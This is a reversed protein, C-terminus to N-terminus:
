DKNLTQRVSPVAIFKSNDIGLTRAPNLMLGNGATAGRYTASKVMYFKMAAGTTTYSNTYVTTVPAFVGDPTNAAYVNYAYAGPVANWTVTVNAGASVITMNAPAAVTTIPTAPDVIFMTNPMNSSLTGAFPLAGVFTTPDVAATGDVHYDRFRNPLQTSETYYFHNTTASYFDEWVSYARVALNGGTYVFPTQLPIVVANIGIPFTVTGDYVLTYTANNLWGGALTNLATNQMWLKIPKNVTETFNNQYVIAQITGGSMMLEAGTYIADSISNKWYVNIFGTNSTTTTAVNGVTPMFTNASYVSVTKPATTNNGALMDGALVVEAYVSYNGAAAPTWNITHVVSATPAIAASVTLSALEQNTVAKKLKVTYANESLLGTNTVTANYSYQTGAVAMLPGTLTAISLDHALLPLLEFNDMYVSRYTGGGGHKFAIYSDTGVYTEFSVIYQANTTTLTITQFPTFTGTATNNNVTGVILTNGATGARAYFKTKVTNLNVGIPPTILRLAAPNADANNYMYINNPASFAGTTSTSLTPTSTSSIVKSWYDPLNPTSVGDFNETYPFTVITPDTHTTFRWIRFEPDEIDPTELAANIPLVAWFYTNNWGLNVGEQAALNLSPTPTEFYMGEFLTAESTSVYVGFLTATSGTPAPTWTLTTTLPNVGTAADIPSVLTVHNPAGTPVIEVTVDDVFMNNGYASVAELVVYGTASSAGAPLNFAYPYWGAAAEVPTMANDRYVTGLLTAGTLNNTTNYYVNVKEDYGAYAPDRYMYFKMRYAAAGLSLPPTVIIAKNGASSSYANYTIMKAGSNPACTPNSGTATQTWLYTGVTALNTWGAPPFTADFSQTYPFGYITPDAITTFSRVTNGVADGNGNTPVIMWNYTTSYSLNATFTYPSTTVTTILTTPPNNPGCYVKFGTPVGGISAPTWTLTPRIIQDIALDAPATQTVPAPAEPTIEPGIVTDIYYSAAVLGTRFGLYYNNGALSSLDVISNAMTYTTPHTIDTGVQTWTVRDPSYVLQLTGTTSSAASWFKIYSNAAITCKPGSLIYQTTASGYKYATAVGNQPYSTSRSWTGPNAWGAPPFTTPEFSEVLQTATPTTYNWTAVGTADGTANFPVVKWYYSRGYANDTVQYTTNLGTYVVDTPGFTGNDNLYVKFGTHPEGTTPATWILMPNLLTVSGNLPTVYTATNPVIAAPHEFTIDDMYIYSYTTGTGYGFGIYTNTGAYAAFDVYYLTNTTTLTITQMVSFTASSSTNNLTGVKLTVGSTSARAYFKTRLTNIASGQPPSALVLATPAGDASNYFQVNNPTSVPTSTVTTVTVYTSTSNIVTSWGIPLAPITVTDFNQLHPYTVITPDICVASLSVAVPAINSNITVTGNHTGGAAPAYQVTFTASQGTTLSAPAGNATLTYYSGSITISSLDLSGVGTNTITFQKTATTNIIKTGFDWTTPSLTLIPTSPAVRVLINDIMLDNDANSVTSIGYFAIYKTGATGLPLIVSTGAPPISNLVYSSGANDWQRVVNAPTWTTGDGVLVAFIDDTGTTAPATSTGYAMLALDFVVQYNDTPVAIPPTILWGNWNSYLNIRAAYNPPTTVTNKWDDQVWSGTGAAGLVTPTALVGSYKGWNTPPFAAGTTGFDVAYPFSTITPNPEATFSWVSSGTADGIANYAVVKWYYVTSYTFDAPDYTTVNGLDTGNVINTPPNDTGLYLKYGSPLGGGSSWNLTATRLVGTAANAPSVILAPNPVTGAVPPAFTFVRRAGVTPSDLNTMASSAPFTTNTVSTANSTWSPTTIITTVNGVSGVINSTSIYVGRTMTATSNNYM